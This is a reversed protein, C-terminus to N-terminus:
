SGAGEEGDEFEAPYDNRLECNGDKARPCVECRHRFDDSYIAGCFSCWDYGGDSLHVLFDYPTLDASLPIEFCMDFGWQDLEGELLWILASKQKDSFAECDLSMGQSKRKSILTFLHEMHNEFCRETWLDRPFELIKLGGWFEAAAELSIVEVGKRKGKLDTSWKGFDDYLRRVFDNHWEIVEAMRERDSDWERAALHHEPREGLKARICKEVSRWSWGPRQDEGEPTYSPTRELGLVSEVREIKSWLDALTGEPVRLPKSLGTSFAFYVHYSM